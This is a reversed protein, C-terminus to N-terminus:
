SKLKEGIITVTLSESDRQDGAYYSISVQTKSPDLNLKEEILKTIDITSLEVLVKEKM